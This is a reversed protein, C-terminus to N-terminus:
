THQTGQTFASLFFGALNRSLSRLSPTTRSFTGILYISVPGAFRPTPDMSEARLPGLGSISGIRGTRKVGSLFDSIPYYPHTGTKRHTGARLCAPTPATRPASRCRRRPSPTISSASPSASWIKPSTPCCAGAAICTEELPPDELLRFAVLWVAQKGPGAVVSGERGSVPHGTGPVTGGAAQPPSRAPRLIVGIAHVPRRCRPCPPPSPLRSARRLPPDGHHHRPLGKPLYLPAHM